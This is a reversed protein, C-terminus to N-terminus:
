DRSLLLEDIVHNHYIITLHVSQYSTLTDLERMLAHALELRQEGTGPIQFEFYGSIQNDGSIDVTATGVPLGGREPIYADYTLMDGDDRILSVYCGEEADEEEDQMHSLVNQRHSWGDDELDMDDDATVEHHDALERHVLEVREITKNQYLMDLTFTDIEDEDLELVLLEVAADMEDEDPYRQWRLEGSIDAGYQKLVAAAATRGEADNLEYHSVSRGASILELELSAEEDEYRFLHSSDNDPLEASRPEEGKELISDVEGHSLFVEYYRVDLAEALEFVYEKVWAVVHEKADDPLSQEDLQVSGSLRDGDRFVLFMSGAYYGDVLLDHVEGTSTRLDPRSKIDFSM